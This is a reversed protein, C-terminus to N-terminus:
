PPASISAGMPLRHLRRRGGRRPVPHNRGAERSLDPPHPILTTLGKLMMAAAQQDAIGDPLKVLRDAPILRAESYAGIPANGYAVRDGPKVDTVGSGLEEVVGAAETGIVSPM